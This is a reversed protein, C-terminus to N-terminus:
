HDITETWLRHMHAHSYAHSPNLQQNVQCHRDGDSCHLGKREQGMQGLMRRDKTARM